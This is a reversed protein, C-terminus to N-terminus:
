NDLQVEDSYIKVKFNNDAYKYCKVFFDNDKNEFDLLKIYKDELYEVGDYNIYSCYKKAKEEYKSYNEDYVSIIYTTIGLIIILTIIIFIKIFQNYQYSVKKKTKM